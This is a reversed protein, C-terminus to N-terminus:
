TDIEFTSGLLQLTGSAMLVYPTLGDFVWSSTFGIGLLLTGNTWTGYPSNSIYKSFKYIDDMNESKYVRQSNDILKWLFLGSLGLNLINTSLGPYSENLLLGGLWSYGVYSTNLNGIFTPPESIHSIEWATYDSKHTPFHIGTVPDINPPKDHKPHPEYPIEDGETYTDTYPDYDPGYNVDGWPVDSIRKTRYM